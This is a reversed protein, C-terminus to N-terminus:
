PIPLDIRPGPGFEAAEDDTIVAFAGSPVADLAAARSAASLLTAEDAGAVFFVYDDGLEEGDDFVKVEGHQELDFLFEEIQSIWPFQYETADLRPAAQLPVHIEVVTAMSEDHLLDVLDDLRPTAIECADSCGPGHISKSQAADQVTSCRLVSRGQGEM